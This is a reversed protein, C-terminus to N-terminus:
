SQTFVCSYFYCFIHHSMWTSKWCLYFEFSHRLCLKFYYINRSFHTWWEDSGNLSRKLSDADFNLKRWEFIFIHRWMETTQIGHWGLRPITRKYHFVLCRAFARSLSLWCFLFAWAWQCITSQASYLYKIIIIIIKIIILYRSNLGLACWQFRGYRWLLAREKGFLVHLRLITYALNGMSRKNIIDSNIGTHKLKNKFTQYRLKLTM